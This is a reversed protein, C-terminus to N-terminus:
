VVDVAREPKTTTEVGGKRKRRVLCCRWKLHLESDCTWVDTPREGDRGVEKCCTPKEEQLWRMAYRCGFGNTVKIAIGVVRNVAKTRKVGYAYVSCPSGLVDCVDFRCYEGIMPNANRQETHMRAYCVVDNIYRREERVHLDRETNTWIGTLHLESGGILARIYEMLSFESTGSWM